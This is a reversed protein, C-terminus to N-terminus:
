KQKQSWASCWGAAPVIGGAFVGCGGEKPGKATYLSCTDCRAAANTRQKSTAADLVFNLAQAQPNTPTVAAQALANGSLLASAFPTAAAGAVAIRLFSRRSVAMTM